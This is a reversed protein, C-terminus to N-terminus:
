EVQKNQVNGNEHTIIGWLKLNMHDRIFFTQWTNVSIGTNVTTVLGSNLRLFGGTLASALTTAQQNWQNNLLAGAAPGNFDCDMLRTTHAIRAEGEATVRLPRAPVGAGRNFAVQTFGAEAAALPLNAALKGHTDLPDNIAAM